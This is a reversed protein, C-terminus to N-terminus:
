NFSHELLPGPLRHKHRAAPEVGDHVQVGRDRDGVVVCAGGGKRLHRTKGYM